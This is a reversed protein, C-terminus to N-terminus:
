GDTKCGKIMKVKDKWKPYLLNRYAEKATGHKKYYDGTWSLVAYEYTKLPLVYNRLKREKLRLCYDFAFGHFSFLEDFKMAKWTENKLLFLCDDVVQVERPEKFPEGQVAGLLEEGEFQCTGAFRKIHPVYTACYGEFVGDEKWGTYGAVGLNPLKDAWEEAKRLWLGKEKFVLDQHV